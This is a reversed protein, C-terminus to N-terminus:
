NRSLRGATLKTINPIRAANMAAADDNFFIFAKSELRNIKKKL